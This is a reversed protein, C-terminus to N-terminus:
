DLGRRWLEKILLRIKVIVPAILGMPDFISSIASLIGRKTESVVKNSVNLKPMDTNFDWTIGRTRITPLEELDLNVVRSSLIERSLNKSIIRNNSIFKALNFCGYTLLRATYSIISNNCM